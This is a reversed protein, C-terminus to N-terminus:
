YAGYREVLEMIWTYREFAVEPPVSHDSHYMYGGGEKACLIKDRVEAECAERPGSMATVDVNGWLTLDRGYTAKLKRVDMGASAQLPQLVDLGCEIFDALLSECNGCCHLWFSIGNAHLFEGLKKYAPKFVTRWCEPSFLLGRTCALDNLLFLADPKIDLSLAHRLCDILLNNHAEAMERVWAPDEALDMLLPTYGRHRWTAEWPGYACFCVYRGSARLRDLQRRTEAWTPYDNMHMFYSALDLRSRDTPDFDFRGRLRGWTAKDKTVHDSFGISRSKNIAKRATYGYRDRYTVYGDETRLMKQEFRMSTDIHMMRMDFDFLDEPDRDAPMGQTRWGILTDEWFSDYRPIRDMPKREIANCVRTKSDM